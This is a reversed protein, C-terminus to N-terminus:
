VALDSRLNSEGEEIGEEKSEKYLAWSLLLRSFAPVIDCDLSAPSGAGERANLEACRSLQMPM